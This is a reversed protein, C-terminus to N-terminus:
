KDISFGVSAYKWDINMKMVSTKNWQLSSFIPIVRQGLCCRIYGFLEIAEWPSM